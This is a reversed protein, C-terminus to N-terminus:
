TESIDIWKIGIKRAAYGVEKLYNGYAMMWHSDRVEKLLKRWDGQIEVDQQSRCIELFPNGKVIGKFGVWRGTSYEPDIFTVEQGKPIEVKPAAGYESEYHTMIKAPEYHTGDMRRPATCHACTVVANHPFTSNHLFVPKGSIYHLLIGSPIIVFDSECFAIVGEDNLLSLTLCATTEAMPMITAMCARITFAPADYERMLDRFVSHLLFSNVVFKKETMLATDPLSLYKETWQEAKSILSSNAKASRIRPALDDYSVEIIEIKYKERAVDPAEPSYKGWAGGLTVIRTGIFNTLGYLARLRWLLEQYDDVVVDYIYVGGHNLRSNQSAENEDTKLYRVSLAEYWYYTPGSSHRVFILTDKDKERAFCARLMDGSGTAPYVIIVDYDNKHVQLAEETSKVKVVPLIELPFDARTSLSNLEKSIRQTEESAAQETQVGGWSKWSTQERRVSTRYMLVPQVKIKKGTVIFPKNPNWEEITRNAFSSTGLGLVGGAISATILGVFERRNMCCDCM